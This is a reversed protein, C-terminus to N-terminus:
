GLAKLAAITAGTPPSPDGDSIVIMHKVAVNQLTPSSRSAMAAVGDRVGAHRRADHSRDPGADPRPQPGSPLTPIWLWERHGDLSHRRLLRTGGLTKIAEKAIVKQWHNGEAIESAHMLMVLAGRPVVKANQIQFDVPMAKELETGTWGGAGFSDPGGLMLLGGGMQQTNRVLM